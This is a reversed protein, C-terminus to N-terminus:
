TATGRLGQISADRVNTGSVALGAQLRALDLPNRSLLPLDEVQKATITKSLVPSTTNIVEQAGATVTVAETVAGVELAVDVKAPQSVEIVIETVDARKFGSAEVTATYKGPQLSTFVFVGQTNTITHFDEGTDANRVPGGPKGRFVASGSAEDIVSFESCPTAISARKDHDPLFGLTNLRIPIDVPKATFTPPAIALLSISLLAVQIHLHGTIATCLLHSRRIRM